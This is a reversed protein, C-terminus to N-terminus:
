YFGKKRNWEEVNEIFAFWEDARPHEGCWDTALKATAKPYRYCMGDDDGIWYWCTECCPKAPAFRMEVDIDGVAM